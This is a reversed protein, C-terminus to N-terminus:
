IFTRGHKKLDDAQKAIVKGAHDAYYADALKQLENTIATQYQTSGLVYIWRLLFSQGSEYPMSASDRNIPDTYYNLATGADGLFHDVIMQAYIKPDKLFSDM